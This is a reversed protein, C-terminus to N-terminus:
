VSALVGMVRYKARRERRRESPDMSEIEDIFAGVDQFERYVSAYRVYAVPDVSHLKDM